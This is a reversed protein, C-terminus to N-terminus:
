CCRRASFFIAFFAFFIMLLPEIDSLFRAYRLFLLLSSFSFAEFFYDAAIDSARM